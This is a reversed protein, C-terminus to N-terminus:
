IGKSGLDKSPALLCRVQTQQVRKTDKFPGDVVLPHSPGPDMRGHWANAHFLEANLHLLSSLTPAMIGRLDPIAASPHLSM